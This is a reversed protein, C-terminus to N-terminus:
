LLIKVKVLLSESIKFFTFRTSVRGVRSVRDIKVYMAAKKVIPLHIYYIFFVFVFFVRKTYLYNGCFTKCQNTASTPFRVEESYLAM